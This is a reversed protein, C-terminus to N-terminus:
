RGGGAVMHGDQLNVPDPAGRWWSRRRPAARITILFSLGITEPSPRRSRPAPIWRSALAAGGHGLEGPGADNPVGDDLRPPLGVFRVGELEGGSGVRGPRRGAGCGALAALLAPKLPISPFPCSRDELGDTVDSKGAPDKPEVPVAYPQEEVGIAIAAGARSRQDAVSLAVPGLAARARRGALGNRCRWSGVPGARAGWTM